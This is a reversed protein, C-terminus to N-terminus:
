YEFMDIEDEGSKKKLDLYKNFTLQSAKKVIDSKFHHVNEAICHEFAGTTDSFFSSHIGEELILLVPMNLGLAMGKEEITWVSPMWYSSGEIDIQNEKTYIGIYISATKMQSLVSRLVVGGTEKSFRFGDTVTFERRLLETKLIKQYEDGNGKTYSIFVRKPISSGLKAIKSLYNLRKALYEKRLEWRAWKTLDYDKADSAIEISKNHAERLKKIVEPTRKENKM